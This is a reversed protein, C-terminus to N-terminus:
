IKALRNKLIENRLNNFYNNLAVFFKRNYNLYNKMEEPDNFEEILSLSKRPSYIKNTPVALKTNSIGDWEAIEFIKQLGSDWTPDVTVWTRKEPIYVELFQHYEPDEHPFKLIKKPLGLEEWRFQCIRYRSKLGLPYLMKQCIEAKTSCSYDQENGIAIYYPIDRVIRFIRVREFKTFNSKEKGLNKTVM